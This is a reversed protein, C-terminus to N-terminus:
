CLACVPSPIGSPVRRPRVLRDSRSSPLTKIAAFVLQLNLLSPLLGGDVAWAIYRWVRVRWREIVSVDDPFDVGPNSLRPWPPTPAFGPRVRARQWEGNMDRELLSAYFLPDREMRVEADPFLTDVEVNVVRASYLILLTSKM